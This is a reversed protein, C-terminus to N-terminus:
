VCGQANSTPLQPDCMRIQGGPSIVIVLRRTDAAALTASTADVRTIGGAVVRGFSTFVVSAPMGVGAGIATTYAPNPQAVTSLGVRANASGEASFRSQIPVAFTAGGDNSADVAWNSLGSGSGNNTLQFRVPVNRRVAEARALQLGDRISEAAVRVQSNQLWVAFNPMGLVLLIGLLALTIALEILTFGRSLQPASLVRKKAFLTLLAGALM